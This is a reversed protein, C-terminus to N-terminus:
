KIKTFAMKVNVFLLHNEIKGVNPVFKIKTVFKASLHAFSQHKSNKLCINFSYTFFFLYNILLINTFKM